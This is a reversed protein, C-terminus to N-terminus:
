DCGVGDGDRDLKHTDVGTVRVPALNLRRIDSCDLDPPFSPICGRYNSDCKDTNVKLNSGNPYVTTLSKSIDLITGPCARWLGRKKVQAQKVATLMQSFKTGRQGRYAWPTAAGLRILEVNVNKGDLYLYRLLRGREDILGLSSESVLQAKKAKKILSKLIESSERAFCEEQILEPADIQLLRVYEGTKLKISDGDVVRDILGYSSYAPPTVMSYFITVLTAVIKSNLQVRCNCM